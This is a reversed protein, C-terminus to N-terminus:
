SGRRGSIWLEDGTLKRPKHPDRDGYYHQKIFSAFHPQEEKKETGSM